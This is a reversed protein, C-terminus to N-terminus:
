KVCNQHVSNSIPAIGTASFLQGAGHTAVAVAATQQVVRRQAGANWLSRQLRLIDELAAQLKWPRIQAKLLVKYVVRTLEFIHFM